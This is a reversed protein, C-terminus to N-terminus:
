RTDGGDLDRLEATAGRPLWFGGGWRAKRGAAVLMLGRAEAVEPALTEAVGDVVLTVTGDVGHPTRAETVWGGHAWRIAGTQTPLDSFCAGIVVRAATVGDRDWSWAVAKAARYLMDDDVQIDRLSTM